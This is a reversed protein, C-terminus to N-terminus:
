DTRQWGNADASWALIFPPDSFDVVYEERFDGWGTLVQTYQGRSVIVAHPQAMLLPIQRSEGPRFTPGTTRGDIQLRAFSNQENTYTWWAEGPGLAHRCGFSVLAVVVVLAAPFCHRM